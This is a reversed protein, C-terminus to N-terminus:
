HVVQTPPDAYLNGWQKVHGAADKYTVSAVWRSDGDLLSGDYIAIDYDVAEGVPVIQGFQVAHHQVTGHCSFRRTVSVGPTLTPVVTGDARCTLPGTAGDFDAGAHEATPAGKVYVLEISFKSDVMSDETFVTQYRQVSTLSDAAGGMEEDAKEGACALLPMALAAVVVSSGLSRFLTM